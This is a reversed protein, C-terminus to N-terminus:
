KSNSKGLIYGAMTGLLGLVPAIQNNNYGAAVLFLAGIIILTMTIIRVSDESALQQIKILYLELGLIIVGFFLISLSLAIENTTPAHQTDLPNAVQKEEPNQITSPQPNSITSDNQSYVQFSILCLFLFSLIHILKM